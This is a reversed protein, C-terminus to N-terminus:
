SIKIAVFQSLRASRGSSGAMLRLLQLKLDVNLKVILSLYLHGSKNCCGFHSPLKAQWDILHKIRNARAPDLRIDDRGTM